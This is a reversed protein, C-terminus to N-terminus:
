RQTTVEMPRDWRVAVACAVVVTINDPGGRANALDILTSRPGERECGILLHKAIGFADGVYRVVGFPDILARL